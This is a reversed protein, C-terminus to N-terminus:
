RQSQSNCVTRESRTRAAISSTHLLSPAPLCYLELWMMPCRPPSYFHKSHGVQVHRSTSVSVAGCGYRNMM